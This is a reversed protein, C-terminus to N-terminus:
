QRNKGKIKKLLKSAYGKTIGLEEAMDSPSTIGESYLKQVAEERSVELPKWTLRYHEDLRVELPAALDGHV